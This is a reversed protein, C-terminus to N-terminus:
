VKRGFNLELLSMRLAFRLCCGAAFDFFKRQTENSFPTLIREAFCPVRRRVNGGYGSAPLLRLQSYLWAYLSSAITGTGNSSGRITTSAQKKGPASILTLYFQHPFHFLQLQPLEPSPGPFGNSHSQQCNMLRDLRYTKLQM